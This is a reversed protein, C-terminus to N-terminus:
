GPTAQRSISKWWAATEALGADIEISPKFGAAALRDVAAVVLTAESPDDERAGFRLLDACELCEAFTTAIRRVEFAEGSAINIPGEMEGALVTVLARAADSVHMYDRRQRGSSLAVEANQFAANAIASILRGEREGPGYLWFLRAWAWSMGFQPAFSELMRRLCDKTVGYPTAPQLATAGERMIGDRWDYEACTGTALVRQGGSEAFLRLLRLSAELWAVNRASHWYEGPTVDWALHMLHTPRLDAIAHAVAAPDLLDVSMHRVGTSDAPVHRALGIVDGPFAIEAQRMVHVGVFGTAGTVLLRM